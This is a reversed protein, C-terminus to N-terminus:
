GASARSYKEAAAGKPARGPMALPVGHTPKKPLPKRTGVRKFVAKVKEATRPAIPRTPPPGGVILMRGRGPEAAPRIYILVDQELLTLFNLLREVSFEDLLGRLMKSVKPQDIGLLKGAQVQTLGRGRIVEGISIALDAKKLLEDPNPLGLDAFVNDSGETFTIEAEKTSLNKLSM